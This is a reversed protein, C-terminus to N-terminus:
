VVISITNGIIGITIILLIDRRHIRWTLKKVFGYHTIRYNRSFIADVGARIPPIFSVVFKLVVGFM